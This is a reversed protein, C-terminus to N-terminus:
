RTLLPMVTSCISDAVFLRLRGLCARGGRWHSPFRIQRIVIGLCVWVNGDRILHIGSVCLYNAITQTGIIQALGSVIVKAREDIILLDTAVAAAARQEATKAPMVTPIPGTSDNTYLSPATLRPASAFHSGSSSVVLRMCPLM